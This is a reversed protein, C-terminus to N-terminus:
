YTRIYDYQYNMDTKKRVREKMENLQRSLFLQYPAAISVAITLWEKINQAFQGQYKIMFKAKPSSCTQSIDHATELIKTFGDM